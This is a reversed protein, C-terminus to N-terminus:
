REGGGLGWGLLPLPACFHGQGTAPLKSTECAGPTLKRSVVQLNHSGARTM